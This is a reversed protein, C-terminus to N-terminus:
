ADLKIGLKINLLAAAELIKARKDGRADKYWGKLASAVRGQPTSGGSEQKANFAALAPRLKGDHKAICTALKLADRWNCSGRDKRVQEIGEPLVTYVGLVKRAESKRVKASAESWKRADALRDVIYEADDEPVPKGAYTQKAINCVDALKSGTNESTVYADVFALVVADRGTTKSAKM